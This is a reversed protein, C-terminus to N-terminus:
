LQDVTISDSPHGDPNYYRDAEQALREHYTAYGWNRAEDKRTIFGKGACQYCRWDGRGVYVGTGKCKGCSHSGSPAVKAENRQTVMVEYILDAKYAFDM